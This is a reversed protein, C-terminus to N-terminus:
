FAISRDSLFEALREGVYTMANRDAASFESRRTPDVLEIAGLTRGDYQVPACLVSHTPCIVLFRSGNLADPHTADVAIAEGAALAHAFMPDAESTRMGIIETNQAGSAAVVVFDRTALDAVHVFGAVSPIAALATRLVLAAGDVVGDAHRLAHLAEIVGLLPDSPPMESARAASVPPVSVPETSSAAGEAPVSSRVTDRDPRSSPIASWPPEPAPAEVRASASSAAPGSAPAASPPSPTTHRSNARELELATRLAEIASASDGLAEFVSSLKEFAVVARQSPVPESSYRKRIEKARSALMARLEQDERHSRYLESLHEAARLNLPDRELAAELLRVGAQDDGLTQTRVRAAETLWHSAATHEETRAAARELLAAYAKPDKGLAQHVSALARRDHPRGVM